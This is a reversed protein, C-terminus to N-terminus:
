TRNPTAKATGSCTRRAPEDHREEEQRQRAPQEQLKSQGGGGGAAAGTKEEACSVTAFVFTVDCVHQLLGTSDMLQSQRGGNM